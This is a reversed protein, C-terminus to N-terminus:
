NLYAPNKSNEPHIPSYTDNLNSFTPMSTESQKFHSEELIQKVWESSASRGLKRVQKLPSLPRADGPTPYKESDRHDSKHAIQWSNISISPIGSATTIKFPSRNSFSFFNKKQSNFLTKSSFSITNPRYSPNQASFSKRM